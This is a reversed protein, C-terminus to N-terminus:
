TALWTALSVKLAAGGDNPVPTWTNIATILANVKTEILNLRTTINATQALGGYNVGALHIIDVKSFMSIFSSGDTGITVEVISNVSPQIFIGDKTNDAIVKVNYIEAFNGIPVCYCTKTASDYSKVTCLLSTENGSKRMIFKSLADIIETKEKTTM